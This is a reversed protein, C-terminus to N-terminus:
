SSASSFARGGPGSMLGAYMLGWAAMFPLITVALELLARRTSATRYPALARGWAVATMGPGNEPGARSEVSVTM